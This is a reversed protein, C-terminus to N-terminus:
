SNLVRLLDVIAFVSDFRVPENPRMTFAPDRERAKERFYRAAPRPSAGGPRIETDETGVHSLIM